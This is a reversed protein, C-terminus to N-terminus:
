MTGEKKRRRNDSFLGCDIIEVNQYKCGNKVVAYRLGSTISGLLGDCTALLEMETLYDQTTRFINEEIYLPNKNKEYHCQSSIRNRELVILQSGFRQQFLEVARSEDSALFLYQM